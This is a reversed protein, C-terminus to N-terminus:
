IRTICSIKILTKFCMVATLPGLVGLVSKGNFKNVTFFIVALAFGHATFPMDLM